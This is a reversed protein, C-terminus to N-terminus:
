AVMFPIANGTRILADNLSEADGERYITALVRGYKEREDYKRSHLVLPPWGALWQATFATAVKGAESANPGHTEPCNVGYLRVHQRLRVNFGLDIEVQITDGDVVRLARAQYRYLQDLQQAWIRAASKM